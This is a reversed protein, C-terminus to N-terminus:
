LAAWWAGTEWWHDLVDLVTYRRGRWTFAAPADDRREVAVAAAYRRALFAPMCAEQTSGASRAPPCAGVLRCSPPLRAAPRGSWAGASGWALPPGPSGSDFM